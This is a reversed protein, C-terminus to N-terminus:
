KNYNWVITWKNKHKVVYVYQKFSFKGYKGTYSQTVTFEYVTKFAPQDEAAKWNKLKKSKGVEFTFSEAGFHGIFVHARDQIFSAKPFKEKMYPHFLDWSDSFNGEQEYSYFREVVSTAQNSPRFFSMSFILILLIALALLLLHQIMMHNKRRM